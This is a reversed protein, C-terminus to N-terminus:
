LADEYNKAVKVWEQLSLKWWWILPIAIALGIIGMIIGYVLGATGAILAVFVAYFIWYLIQRLFLGNM